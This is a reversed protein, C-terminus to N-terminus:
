QKENEKEANRSLGNLRAVNWVLNESCGVMRGIQAYSMDPSNQIADTIRNYYNERVQRLAEKLTM